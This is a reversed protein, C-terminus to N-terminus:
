GCVLKLSDKLGIGIQAGPIGDNNALSVSTIGSAYTGLNVFGSIASQNVFLHARLGGSQLIKYGIIGTVVGEPVYVSVTCSTTTTSFSWTAGATEGTAVSLTHASAVGNADTFNTWTGTLTPTFSPTVSASVTSISAAFVPASMMGCIGSLATLALLISIGKRALPALLASVGKRVQFFRITSM